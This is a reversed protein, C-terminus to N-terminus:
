CKKLLSRATSVFDHFEMLFSTGFEERSNVLKTNITTLKAFAQALRQQNTPDTQQILQQVFKAYNDQQMYFLAFLTSGATDILDMSFNDELLVLTLIAQLLQPL